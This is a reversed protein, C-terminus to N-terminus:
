HSTFPERSTANSRVDKRYDALQNVNLPKTAQFTLFGNTSNSKEYRSQKVPSFLSPSRMNIQLLCFNNNFIIEIYFDNVGILNIILM